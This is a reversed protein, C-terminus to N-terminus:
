GLLKNLASISTILADLFSTIRGVWRAILSTVQGVVYPTALGLTFIEEAAWVPVRAILTAVCDAILDRVIERVTAVLEGAGRTASELVAAAGGLGSVANSIHGNHKGYATAAEGQWTPMDAAVAKKLDEGATVLGTAVNGWTTAYSNVQDASGTLKELADSLPGCHEIVWGIGMSVLSGIPDMVVSLTDLGASIGGITGDVWSGSEISTILHQVDEVLWLGSTATTSDQVDAIM